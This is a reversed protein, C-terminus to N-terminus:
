CSEDCPASGCVECDEPSYGCIDTSNGDRDVDRGCEKCEGVVPLDSGNPECCM